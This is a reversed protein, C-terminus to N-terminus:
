GVAMVLNTMCLNFILNSVSTKLLSKGMDSIVGVSVQLCSKWNGGKIKWDIKLAQAGHTWHEKNLKGGEFDDFMLLKSECVAALLLFSICVIAFYKTLM